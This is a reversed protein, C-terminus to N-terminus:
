RECVRCRRCTWRPTREGLMLSLWAPEDPVVLTCGDDFKNSFVFWSDALLVQCVMSSGEKKHCLGNPNKWGGWSGGGTTWRAATWTLWPKRSRIRRSASSSTRPRRALWRVTGRLREFSPGALWPPNFCGACRVRSM